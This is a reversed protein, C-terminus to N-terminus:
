LLQYQLNYDWHKLSNFFITTQCVYLSTKAMQINIKLGFDFQFCFWKFVLACQGSVLSFLEVYNKNQCQKWSVEWITYLANFACGEASYLTFGNVTLRIAV